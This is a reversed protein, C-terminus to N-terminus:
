QGALCEDYIILLYVAHPVFNQGPQLNAFIKMQGGLSVRQVTVHKHDIM